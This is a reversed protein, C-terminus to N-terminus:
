VAGGRHKIVAATSNKGDSATVTLNGAGMRVAALAWGYCTTYSGADFREATRPNASGFALLEGGEVTVSVSRDANSEVIGDADTVSVPVFVIEGTGAEPTEPTVSLRRTKGSSALISM